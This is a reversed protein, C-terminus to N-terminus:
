LRRYAFRLISSAIIAGCAIGISDAFLDSWEGSRGPVFLQLIEIAGGLGFLAALLLTRGALAAPFGLYGAFALATFALAHNLKDWGTDMTSPPAPALALYIVAM